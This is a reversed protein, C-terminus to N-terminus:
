CASTSTARSSLENEFVKSILTEVEAPGAGPYPTIVMVFPFNVDPFMDVPLKKFSLWGLALMMMVLCTIFVPRKISLSALNM